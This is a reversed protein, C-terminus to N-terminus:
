SELDFGGSAAAGAARRRSRAAEAGPSSAEPKAFLGPNGAIQEIAWDCWAINEEMMMIGRRLTFYTFMENADRYDRGFFKREIAAFTERYAACAAKEEELKRRAGEAGLHGLFRCRLLPAHKLRIGEFPSQLWEMLYQRGEPTITYLRKNPRRKQIVDRRRIWGRRRMRELTPYIQGHHAHWYHAMSLDFLKVLDYGSLMRQEAILGLLAHELSAKIRPSAARARAKGSQAAAGASQAGAGRSEISAAKPV